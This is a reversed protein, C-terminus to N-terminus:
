KYLQVAFDQGLDCPASCPGTVTGEGVFSVFNGKLCQTANLGCEALNNGNIYAGKPSTLQFSLLKRLHYWQNQGNGPDTTPCGSLENNVPTDGCTSDFIPVQVVTGAYANIAEELGAASVGGTETIYQWSPWPIDVVPPNQVVDVIESTGGATPTWDLWGVSGPNGGCIPLTIEQDRVWSQPPYIPETKNNGSCAYVNIPFTIPLMQCTLTEICGASPGTVATATQNITWKTFGVISILYTRPQKQAVIRVGAATAPVVGDGVNAGLPNAQWDTYERELISSQNAFASKAVALRVQEDWEANTPPTASRDTMKTALVLAGARAAADAANQTARQESMAIGGDLVFGTGALIAVMALAVIAIVQGRSGDDTSRPKM